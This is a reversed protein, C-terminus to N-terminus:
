SKTRVVLLRLQLCIVQPSQADSYYGWNVGDVILYTARYYSDGRVVPQIVQEMPFASVRCHACDAFGIRLIKLNGSVRRAFRIWGLVYALAHQILKVGLQLQSNGNSTRGEIPEPLTGSEPGSGRLLLVLCMVAVLICAPERSEASTVESRQHVASNDEVGSMHRVEGDPIGIRGDTRTQRRLM